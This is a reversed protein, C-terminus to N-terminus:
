QSEAIKLHALFRIPADLDVTEAFARCRRGEWRAEPRFPRGCALRQLPRLRANDAM